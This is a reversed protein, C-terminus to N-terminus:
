MKILNTINSHPNSYLVLPLVLPLSSVLCKCVNLPLTADTLFWIVKQKNTKTEVKHRM